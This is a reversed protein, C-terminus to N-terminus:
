DQCKWYPPFASTNCSRALAALATDAYLTTITPVSQSNRCKFEELSLYRGKLGAYECPKHIYYWLPARVNEIQGASIVMKHCEAKRQGGWEVDTVHSWWHTNVHRCARSRQKCLHFGGAGLQAPCLPVCQLGSLRKCYVPWLSRQSGDRSGQCLVLSLM